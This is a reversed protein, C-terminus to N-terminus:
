VGGYNGRKCCFVKNEKRIIETVVKYHSKIM